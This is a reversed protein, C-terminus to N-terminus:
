ALHIELRHFTTDTGTEVEGAVSVVTGPGLAASMEIKMGDDGSHGLFRARLRSTPSGSSDLIVTLEGQADLTKM